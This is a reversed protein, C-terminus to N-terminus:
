RAIQSRRRRRKAETPVKAGSYALAIKAHVVVDFRSAHTSRAVEALLGNYSEDLFCAVRAPNGLTYCRMLILM